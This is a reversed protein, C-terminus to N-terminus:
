EKTQAHGGEGKKGKGKKIIGGRHNGETIGRHVNVIWGGNATSNRGKEHKVIKKESM